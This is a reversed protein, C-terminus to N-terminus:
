QLRTHFRFTFIYNLLEDYSKRFFNFGIVWYEVTPLVSGRDETLREEMIVGVEGNQFSLWNLMLDHTTQYMYMERILFKKRYWQFELFSFNSGNDSYNQKSDWVQIDLHIWITHNHTALLQIQRRCVKNNLYLDWHNSTMFFSQSSQYKIKNWFSINWSQFNKISIM